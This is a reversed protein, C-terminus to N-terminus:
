STIVIANLRVESPRDARYAWTILFWISVFVIPVALYVLPAAVVFPWPSAGHRVSAIGWAAYAAFLLGYAMSLSVATWAGHDPRRQVAAGVDVPM